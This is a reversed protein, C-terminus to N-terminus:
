WREFRLGEMRSPDFPLMVSLLECELDSSLIHKGYSGGESPVPLEMWIRGDDQVMFQLTLTNEDVIGFFDGDARLIQQGMAVMTDRDCSYPTNSDMTDGTEYRTYFVSYEM